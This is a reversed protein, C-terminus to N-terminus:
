IVANIEQTLRRHYGAYDEDQGVEAIAELERALAFLAEMKLNGAIGKIAHATHVIGERDGRDIAEEMELLSRRANIEFMEMLLDIDERTFGLERSLEDRDM